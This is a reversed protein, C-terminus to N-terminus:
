RYIKTPVSQGRRGRWFRFSIGKTRKMAPNAHIFITPGSTLLGGTVQITTKGKIAVEDTRFLPEGTGPDFKAGKPGKKIRRQKETFLGNQNVKLGLLAVAHASYGM